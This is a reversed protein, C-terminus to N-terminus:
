DEADFQQVKRYLKNLSSISVSLGAPFVRGPTSKDVEIVFKELEKMHDRLTEVLDEVVVQLERVDSRLKQIDPM